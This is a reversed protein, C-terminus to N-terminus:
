RTSPIPANRDVSPGGPCGGCSQKVRDRAGLLRRRADECRSADDGEGTLSCLEGTAREMSALARCASACDSSASRLDAEAHDLSQLAM